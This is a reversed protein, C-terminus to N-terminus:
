MGHKCGFAALLVSLDAGNVVGDGNFDAGTGPSVNTNFQSLLVSLDAGNTMHDGNTDGPCPEPPTVINIQNGMGGHNSCVYFLVDPTTESPTFTLVANGCANSGTVGQTFPVTGPGGGGSATLLFPHLCSQTAQFTYTTGRELNLVPREVGDLAYRFPGAPVTVVFNTAGASAVGALAGIMVATMAFTRNMM